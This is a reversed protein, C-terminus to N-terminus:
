RALDTALGRFDSGVRVVIDASTQEGAPLTDVPLGGLQQALANATYRKAGNRVLVASRGSSIGNTVISVSFSREVLRDAVSQALGSRGSTNRIEISAAESKVQPDYFMSAAFDRVKARDPLLFFGGDSGSYQLECHPYDGGCPYLVESRIASGDIGSGFRALPLVNAPDFNTQVASGVRDVIAPLSRLLDGETLRTRLASLVLQQRQARSYDNTDHRSRAFRLATPGDMLQPGTAIDLREIGYDATPYAEDHVPRRVDVVVGGVSDVIKTFADFDVIAYANLRIGLLDDVVRRALDPGGFAYAANIKDVLLGPRNIYIDRPISLMAATKNVPDLSLVIMTDTNQTTSNEGRADLGLLLVNLRDSGTWAPPSPDKGAAALLPANAIPAFVKAFFGAWPASGRYAAAYSVVLSICVVGLIAYDLLRRGSLSGMGRLKGAFADAVVYLHYIFFAGVVLFTFAPANRLVLTTLPDAIAIFSGALLVTFIPLLVMLMGRVWRGHYMQGLGPLLGSLVAAFGPSGKVRPASLTRVRPSVASSGGRNSM